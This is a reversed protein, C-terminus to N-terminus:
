RNALLQPPMYINIHNAENSHYFFHLSELYFHKKEKDRPDSTIHTKAFGDKSSLEYTTIQDDSSPISQKGFITLDFHPYRAIVNGIIEYTIGYKAHYTIPIEKAQDTKSLEATSKTNLTIVIPEKKQPQNISPTITGCSTFLIPALPIVSLTLFRFTRHNSRKYM